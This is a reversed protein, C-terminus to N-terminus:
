FWTEIRYEAYVAGYCSALEREELRRWWLISAIGLFGVVLSAAAGRYVPWGLVWLIFGVYMPHRIRAFLGTTVLHDINEVGRLQWVGGFALASGLVVAGLGLWRVAAPVPVSTPDLAGM